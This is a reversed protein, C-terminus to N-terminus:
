LAMCKNYTQMVQTNSTKAYVQTVNLNSHGLYKSIQDIPMGKELLAMATTHRLVHPTLKVIGTKNRLMKIQKEVGAVSLQGHPKRDSVFLYESDDDRILLYEKLYLYAKPTICVTREKHGKGFLRVTYKDYDIDTKKVGVLEGVRCGTAYFFEIMAKDRISDCANRLREMEIPTLSEREVADYKIPKIKALPNQNLYEEAVAWMYLSSLARRFSEMSRM